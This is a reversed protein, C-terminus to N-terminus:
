SKFIVFWIRCTSIQRPWIHWWHDSSTAGSLSLLSRGGCSAIPAFPTGTLIRTIGTNLRKQHKWAISSTAAACLTACSASFMWHVLPALKSSFSDKSPSFSVLMTLINWGLMMLMQLFPHSTKFSLSLAPIFLISLNLLLEDLSIIDTFCKQCIM